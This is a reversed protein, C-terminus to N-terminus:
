LIEYSFIQPEQDHGKYLDAEYSKQLSARIEAFASTTNCISQMMPRVVCLLNPMLFIHQSEQIHEYWRNADYGISRAEQFHQNVTSM